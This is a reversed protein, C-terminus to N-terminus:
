KKIPIVCKSKQVEDLSVCRWKDKNDSNVQIYPKNQPCICKGEIPNEGLTEAQYKCNDGSDNAIGYNNNDYETIACQYPNNEGLYMWEETCINSPKPLNLDYKIQPCDNPPTECKWILKSDNEVYKAIKGEPCICNIDCTVGDKYPGIGYTGNQYQISSCGYVDINNIITPYEIMKNECTRDTPPPTPGSPLPTPGSPSPSPGSPSPSSTQGSPSPTPRSPSPPTIPPSPPTIPPSPPTRPPSPPSSSSNYYIYIGLGFSVVFLAIALYFIDNPHEDIRMRQIPSYVPNIYDRSM